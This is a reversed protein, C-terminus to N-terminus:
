FFIIILSNVFYKLFLRSYSGPKLALCLISRGPVAYRARGHAYIGHAGNVGGEVPGELVLRRGHRRPHMLRRIVMVEPALAGTCARLGIERSVLELQHVFGDHRSASIGEVKEISLPLNDYEQM